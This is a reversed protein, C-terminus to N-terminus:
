FEEIFLLSPNPCITKWKEIESPFAVGPFNETNGLLDLLIQFHLHPEWNGNEEPKGIFGILEGAQFQKEKKHLALSEQSLHGYLTYFLQGDFNHELVLTPGYDKPFNNDQSIVVKGDFVAHVPTQAPVWFDTGLHINRYESGNPTTRKYAETTYFMRRELYGNALLADPNKKQIEAIFDGLEAVTDYNSDPSLETSMDIKLVESFSTKPFMKHLSVANNRAINKFEEM